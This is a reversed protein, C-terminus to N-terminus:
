VAAGGGQHESRIRDQADACQAALEIKSPCVYSCLGCGVCLDVRAREAEDLDDKYLFKHIVHPMIGAPCVEECFNCSVCAREEGQVATTLSEEFRGRLGGLFCWRSYSRKRRGARAFAMFERETAEPLVTLGVCECDLGLQGPGIARGTFVGGNIIRVDNKHVYSHVIKGIPYGYVTEIHEAKEVAPGAVSIIREVCPQSANLAKDVALVGEARMAWVPGDGPKLGLCRALVTFNDNPYVSPIEIVRVGECDRGKERLRQTFGSEVDPVFLYIPRDKLISELSDLGRGFAQLDRLIQVDAGALFPECNMASVIIAQPMTYPNPLAGTHADSFFQWAGLRLLKYRLIGGEGTQRAAQPAEEEARGYEQPSKTIDELVIHNEASQLRVVGARPALLPVSYNGPDRALVGGLNVRRGEEVCIESFEFRGTRLPLYLAEPEPLAQIESGPRGKLAINYGGRFKV